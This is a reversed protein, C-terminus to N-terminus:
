AEAQGAPDPLRRRWRATNPTTPTVASWGPERTAALERRRQVTADLDVQAESEDALVVGFVDFATRACYLGARVDRAVQSEPRELPDGYGGGGSSVAVWADGPELTVHLAPPLVECAGDARALYTGGGAGATGGELGFPPTRLGDSIGIVEVPGLTRVTCTVGPGGIHEGFGMSEPEIEWEEFLLPYLLETHEVSATKLAGIAASTTLLPWGDTQSTAGGGGGANGIQHGWSQGTQEDVGSFMPVNGWRSCGAPVRDPVAQALARAVAEQMADAPLITAAATSAPFEANFMSGRPATVTVRSLCGENHPVDSDLTMVVPITGAADLVAVSANVGSAVQPTTGAFEVRVEGEDITVDAVVPIDTGGAGDTDMWATGRYTGRPMAVLERTTRDSAYKLAADVYVEVVDWGFEVCLERLRTGGIRISGLQAMLDGELLERWRMNALYLELVDRRIKGADCLKVPPITIGEQWVNQAFPNSSHPLPAGVDLQHAKVATWFVQRGEFFVPYLTVLDGVHTNGHYADNCILVDGEAIDDGFFDVVGEILMGLSTTHIPLADVMAVQRCNVDYICCSYDRVFALISTMAAHELTVTMESAIADLRHLILSFTVPDVSDDVGIASPATM